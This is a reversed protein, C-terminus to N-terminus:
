PPPVCVGTHDMDHCLSAVLLSFADLSSLCEKLESVSYLFMLCNQFVHFAHHHNHFPAEQYMNM